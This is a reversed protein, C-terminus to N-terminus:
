SVEGPAVGSEGREVAELTGQATGGLGAGLEATHEPSTGDAAGCDRDRWRGAEREEGVM